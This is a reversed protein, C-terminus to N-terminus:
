FTIQVFSLRNQCTLNVLVEHCVRSPIMSKLSRRVRRTMTFLGEVATWERPVFGGRQLSLRVPVLCVFPM